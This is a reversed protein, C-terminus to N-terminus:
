YLQRMRKKNLDAVCTPTLGTGALKLSTGDWNPSADYFAILPMNNADFALDIHQIDADSEDVSSILWGAHNAAYTLQGDRLYAIAPNGNNDFALSLPGSVM